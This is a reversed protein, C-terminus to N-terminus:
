FVCFLVSRWLLLIHGKFYFKVICGGESSACMTLVVEYWGKLEDSLITWPIKGTCLFFFFFTEKLLHFVADNSQTFLRKILRKVSAVRFVFRLLRQMWIKIKCAVLSKQDRIILLLYELSSFLRLDAFPTFLIAYGILYVLKELIAM